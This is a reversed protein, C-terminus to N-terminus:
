IWVPSLSLSQSTDRASPPCSHVQPPGALVGCERLTKARMRWTGYHVREGAAGRKEVINLSVVNNTGPVRPNYKIKTTTFYIMHFSHKLYM